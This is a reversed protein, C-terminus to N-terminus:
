LWRERMKLEIIGQKSTVAQGEKLLFNELDSQMDLMYTSETGNVTMTVEEKKVLIVVKSGASFTGTATIRGSGTTREIRDTNSGITLTIQEPLTPYDTDITASGDTSVLDSFKYPSDCHITFTSIIINSDDPVTQMASLRGFYFTDPEDLFKIPVQENTTLLKRLAKFREQFETNNDAQLEYTITLERHPLRDDITIVGEHTPESILEVGITERGSVKLTEYGNLENEIYKGNFEMAVTPLRRLSPETETPQRFEM